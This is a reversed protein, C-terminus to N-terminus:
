DTYYAGIMIMMEDESLLGFRLYKDTDNNYIAEGRLGEGAELVLPPDFELLIPHEWDNTYYILEGDRLGGKIFIRYEKMHQHAHSSLIFIHRREGFTYNSTVTSEQQPPLLFDQKSLFLEQAVHQVESADITNFNVYVEGTVSQESYNVYHSNLDFGKGASVKLAVGEPYTYNTNRFQTGFVFVQALMSELTSIIYQNNEDRVDRIENAPPVAIGPFFDYLIFHHSGQRMTIEINNVFIDEDNGLIQYEFLEREFNPQVDFPGLHLQVGSAPIPLATFNADLEEYRSSDNLIAENTVIGTEPAGAVIWQRIYELEGNTLAPLGLPMISGYEPHDEYFHEQDNANIKEWLFSSYLSELGKTELLKLGDAAAAVNNPVIDILNSYAVDNTLILDSERAFSTGDSHCVTCNTAFIQSQILEWSSTYKNDIPAQDDNGCGTLLFVLFFFNLVSIYRINM